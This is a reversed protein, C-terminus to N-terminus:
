TKLIWDKPKNKIVKSKRTMSNYHSCLNKKGQSLNTGYIQKSIIDLILFLLVFLHHFLRLTLIDLYLFWSLFSISLVFSNFCWSFFWISYILIKLVTIARPHKVFLFLLQVRSVCWCILLCIILFLCLWFGVWIRHNSFFIGWGSSFRNVKENTLFM